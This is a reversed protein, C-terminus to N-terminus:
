MKEHYMERFKTLFDEVSYTLMWNGWDKLIKDKYMIQGIERENPTHLKWNKFYPAKLPKWEGRYRKEIRLWAEYEELDKKVEIWLFTWYVWSIIDTAWISQMNVRYKKGGRVTMISWWKTIEAVHGADLLIKCIANEIVKESM